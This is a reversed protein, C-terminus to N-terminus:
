ITELKSKHRHDIRVQCCDQQPNDIILALIYLRSALLRLFPQDFEIVLMLAKFESYIRRRNQIDTGIGIVDFDM